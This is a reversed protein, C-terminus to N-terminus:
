RGCRQVVSGSRYLFSGGSSIEVCSGIVRVRERVLPNKKRGPRGMVQFKGESSDASREEANRSLLIDQEKPLVDM